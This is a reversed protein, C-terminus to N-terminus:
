DWSTIHKLDQPNELQPQFPPLAHSPTVSSRMCARPAKHWSTMRLYLKGLSTPKGPSCLPLCASPLLAVRPNPSQVQHEQSIAAETHETGVRFGVAESGSVPRQFRRKPSFLLHAQKGGLHGSSNQALQAWSNNEHLKHFQFLTM